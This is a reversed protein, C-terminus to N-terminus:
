NSNSTFALYSQSPRGAPAPKWETALGVIRRMQTFWWQAREIPRRNRVTQTGPQAEFGLEMQNEFTVNIM